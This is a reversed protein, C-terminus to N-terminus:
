FADYSIVLHSSNLRTSKRDLIQLIAVHQAPVLEIDLHQMRWPVCAARHAEADSRIQEGPVREEMAAHAAAIKGAPRQGREHKRELMTEVREGGLGGDVRTVPLARSDILLHADVRKHYM